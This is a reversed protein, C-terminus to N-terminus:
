HTAHITNLGSYFVMVKCGSAEPALHAQDINLNSYSVTVKWTSAESGSKSSKNECKILFGDSATWGTGFLRM